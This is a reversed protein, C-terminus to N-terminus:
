AKYGQEQRTTAQLVQALLLARLADDHLPLGTSFAKQSAACQEQLQSESLNALSM